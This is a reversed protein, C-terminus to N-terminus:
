TVKFRVAGAGGTVFDASATFAEIRGDHLNMHERVNQRGNFAKDCVMWWAYYKKNWPANMFHTFCPFRNTQPSLTRKVSMGGFARVAMNGESDWGWPCGWSSNNTTQCKVFIWRMLTACVVGGRITDAAHSVIATASYERCCRRSVFSQARIFSIVASGIKWRRRWRRWVAARRWNIILDFRLRPAPSDLM